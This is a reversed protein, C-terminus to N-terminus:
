VYLCLSRLSAYMPGVEVTGNFYIPCVFVCLSTHPCMCLSRGSHCWLPIFLSVPRSLSLSRSLSLPVRLVCMHIAAYRFSAISTHLPFPLPPSLSFLSTHPCMYLSMGSLNQKKKMLNGIPLKLETLLSSPLSPPLSPPLSLSLSLSVCVCVCLYSSM